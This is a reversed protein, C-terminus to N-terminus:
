LLIVVPKQEPGYRVVDRAVTYCWRESGWGPLRSPGVSALGKCSEKMGHCWKMCQGGRRKKWGTGSDSFSARRPIRQSSM